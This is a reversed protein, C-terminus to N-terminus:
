ALRYVKSAKVKESSKQTQLVEKARLVLQFWCNQNLLSFAQRGLTCYVLSSTCNTFPCFTMQHKHWVPCWVVPPWKYLQVFLKLPIWCCCGFRVLCLDINMQKHGNPMIHRFMYGHEPIQRWALLQELGAQMFGIKNHSDVFFCFLFRFVRIFAQQQCHKNDKPQKIFETCVKAFISCFIPQQQVIAMAYAVDLYGLYCCTGYKVSDWQILFVYTNIHSFAVSRGTSQEILLPLFLLLIGPMNSTKKKNCKAKM